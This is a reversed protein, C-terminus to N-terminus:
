LTHPERWMRRLPPGGAPPINNLFVFGHREYLRRNQDSTAELYAPVGAADLAPLTAHFLASGIGQGQREPVVALLNLHAHPEAPLNADMVELLADMRRKEEPDLVAALEADFAELEDEAPVSQGPPIWLAAGAGDTTLYTHGLPQLARVFPAFAANGVARRRDPDPVIWRMTPDDHFARAVIDTLVPVDAVASLRVTTPTVTTRTATM